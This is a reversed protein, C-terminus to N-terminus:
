RCFDDFFGILSRNTKPDKPSQVVEDKQSKPIAVTADVDAKKYVKWGYFESTLHLFRKGGGAQWIHLCPEM